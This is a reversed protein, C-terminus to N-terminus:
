KTKTDIEVLVDNLPFPIRLIEGLPIDFELPYKPNAALIIWWYNASGYVKHSLTDLRTTLNYEMYVDTDREDIKFMPMLSNKYRNYAM